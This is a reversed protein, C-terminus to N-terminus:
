LRATKLFDNAKGCIEENIKIPLCKYLTDDVLISLGIVWYEKM